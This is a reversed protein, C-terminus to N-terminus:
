LRSGVAPYIANVGGQIATSNDVRVAVITLLQGEAEM